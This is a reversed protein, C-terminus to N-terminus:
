RRSSSSSPFRSARRSSRSPLDAGLGGHVAREPHQQRRHDALPAVAGLAGPDARLAARHLVRRLPRDARPRGGRALARPERLVRRTRRAGSAHLNRSALWLDVAFVTLGISGFPVLGLEVRRARCGSACSRASASASPSCRSCSRSSTSTAAWSTARSDPSSPSFPRATSGSGPSASCRSALRRPPRARGRPEELNRRDSELQDRPWSGGARLPPIAGARGM